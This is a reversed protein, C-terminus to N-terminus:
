AQEIPIMGDLLQDAIAELDKGTLVLGSELTIQSYGSAQSLPDTGARPVESPYLGDENKGGPLTDAGPAIAEMMAADQGATRTKEPGDLEPPAEIKELFDVFLKGQRKSVRVGVPCDEALAEQALKGIEDDHTGAIQDGMFVIKYAGSPTREVSQITTLTDM